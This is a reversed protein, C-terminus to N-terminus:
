TISKSSGVEARSGSSTPSTSLVIRSTASVPMVMTTTVCSSPKARSIPSRLTNMSSPTITSCPGRPKKSFQSLGRARSNMRATRQHVEGVVVPAEDPVVAVGQEVPQPGRDLDGEDRQDDGDDAPQQQRHQARRLRRQPPDGDDVDVDEA